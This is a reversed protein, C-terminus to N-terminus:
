VQAYSKNITTDLCHYIWLGKFTIYGKEDICQHTRLWSVDHDYTLLLHKYIDSMMPYESLIKSEKLIPYLSLSKYSKM